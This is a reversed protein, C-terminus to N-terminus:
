GGDPRDGILRLAAVPCSRVASPLVPAADRAASQDIHLVGEDDLRFVDPVTEECFGFGECKGRDVEVASM